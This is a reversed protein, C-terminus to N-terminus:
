LTVTPLILGVEELIMKISSGQISAFKKIDLFRKIESGWEKKWAKHLSQELSNLFDIADKKTRKEKKIDESFKHAFVLREDLGMALFSVAESDSGKQLDALVDFRLLRSKLTPLIEEEDNVCVFFHSSERPEELTKLLANQAETTISGYSIIYIKKEGVPSMADMNRLSWAENIGFKEYHMHWFDPNALVSVGAERVKEKIKESTDRGGLSFYAHHSFLNM